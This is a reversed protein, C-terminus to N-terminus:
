KKKRKQKYYYLFKMKILLNGFTSFVKKLNELNNSGIEFTIFRTIGTTLANSIISFMSVFGGVVNYIGFDTIGLHKLIVRSAYLNVLMIIIMRFYLMITNKAIRKNNAATDQTTTSM